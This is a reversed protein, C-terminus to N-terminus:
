TVRSVNRWTDPAKESTGWRRFCGSITDIIGGAGPSPRHRSPCSQVKSGNNLASEDRAPNDVRHYVPGRCFLGLGGHDHAAAQRRWAAMTM